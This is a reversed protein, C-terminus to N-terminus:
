ATRLVRFSRTLGDTRAAPPEAELGDFQAATRRPRPATRRTTASSAGPSARAPPVCGPVATARATPRSCTSSSSTAPSWAGPGSTTTRTVTRRSTRCDGDLTGEASGGGGARDLLTRRCSGGRRSAVRRPVGLTSEPAVPRGADVDVRQGLGRRQRYREDQHWPTPQRTGPVKVLLHDDPYRRVVPAAGDAIGAADAAKSEFAIQRYEEIRQWNCFTRSSAARTTTAAPRRRLASRPRRPQARDRRLVTEVEDATSCGSPRHRPGDERYAPSRDDDVIVSRDIATM